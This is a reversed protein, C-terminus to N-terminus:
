RLAELEEEIIPLLEGREKLRRGLDHGGSAHIDRRSAGLRGGHLVDLPDDAAYVLRLSPYDGEIDCSPTEACFQPWRLDGLDRKAQGCASQPSFALVRSAPALRSFLIAAFGGASGGLFLARTSGIAAILRTALLQPGCQYWREFEDRVAIFNARLREGTSVWEFMHNRAALGSFAVLTVAEGRHDVMIM